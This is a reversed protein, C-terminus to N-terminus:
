HGVPFCLREVRGRPGAFSGTPRSAGRIPFTECLARGQSRVEGEASAGEPNVSLADIVRPILTGIQRFGAKGFGRTTGASAGLRV